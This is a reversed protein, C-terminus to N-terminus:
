NEAISYIITLNYQNLLIVSKIFILHKHTNSIGTNAFWEWKISTVKINTKHMMAIHWLLIEAFKM